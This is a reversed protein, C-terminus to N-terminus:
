TESVAVLQDNTLTLRMDVRSAECSPATKDWMFDLFSSLLDLQSEHFIDPREEYKFIVFNNTAGTKKMKECLEQMPVPANAREDDTMMLYAILANSTDNSTFTSIMGIQRLLLDLTSGQQVNYHSLTGGDELREGDHIIRMQDPPVGEMDQIKTKIYAITTGPRVNDIPLTKGTLTKVFIKM